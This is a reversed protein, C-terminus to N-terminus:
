TSSTGSGLAADTDTSSSPREGDDYGSSWVVILLYRKLKAACRNCRILSGRRRVQPGTVGCVCTNPGLPMLDVHGPFVIEPTDFRAWYAEDDVSPYTQLQAELAEDEDQHYRLVHPPWGLQPNPAYIRQERDGVSGSPGAANDQNASSSFRAPQLSFPQHLQTPTSGIAFPIPSNPQTPVPGYSIPSLGDPVNRSRVRGVYPIHPQQQFPEVAIGAPNADAAPGVSPCSHQSWSTSTQRSCDVLGEIYMYPSPARSRPPEHALASAPMVLNSPVIHGPHEGTARFTSTSATSRASSLVPNRGTSTYPCPREYYCHLARSRCNECQQGGSCNQILGTSHSLQPLFGVGATRPILEPPPMLVPAILSACSHRHTSSECRRWYLNHCQIPDGVLATPAEKELDVRSSTIHAHQRHPKMLIKLRDAESASLLRSESWLVREKLVYPAVLRWGRRTKTIPLRPPEDHVHRRFDIVLADTDGFYLYDWLSGDMIAQRWSDESLDFGRDVYKRIALRDKATTPGDKILGRRSLTAHPFGCACSDPSIFNTVLTSWFYRLPTVPSHVVSRIVDVKRGTASTYRRVARIGNEGDPHSAEDEPDCRSFNLGRPNEVAAIFETFTTDPVYIDLDGPQWTEDELFFQLAVSGSIVAEHKTLLATLPRADLVFPSIAADFRKRLLSLDSLASCAVRRCLPFLSM